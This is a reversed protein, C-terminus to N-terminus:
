GDLARIERGVTDWVSINDDVGFSKVYSYTYERYSATSPDAAMTLCDNESIRDINIPKTGLSSAMLDIQHFFGSLIMEATKVFLVPKSFLVAFNVATSQHQVVLSSKAVLDITRGKIIERGNFISPNKEYDSRPHAAVVVRLGSMNEINDFFRNMSEFYPEEHIPKINLYAFDPHNTVAEDIFVCIDEKAPIQNKNQKMYQLYEYHDISHTPIFRQFDLGGVELYHRLIPSMTGFVRIPKPYWETHKALFHVIERGIKKRLSSLSFLKKYNLRIYETYGKMGNGRTPVPLAGASIIVYEVNNKQLVRFIKEHKLDMQSVGLIYDVFIAGKKLQAIKEDFERLNSVSYIDITGRQSSEGRKFSRKPYRLVDQLNIIKVDFGQNELDLIGYKKKEADEPNWPFLYIIRKCM